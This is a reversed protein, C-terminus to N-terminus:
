YRQSARAAFYANSAPLFMLIIALLVIVFGVVGGSSSSNWGSSVWPAATGLLSLIGLVTLTIRAWNRGDRMRNVIILEIIALVFVFIAFMLVISGAAAGYIGGFVAGGTLAVIGIVLAFIAGILSLIAGILWIVYAATVTGPRKAAPAPAPMPEPTTM